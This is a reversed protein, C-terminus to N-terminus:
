RGWLNRRLRRAKNGERAIENILVTALYVIVVGHIEIVSGKELGRDVPTSLWSDISIKM